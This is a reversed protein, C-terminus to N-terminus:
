LEFYSNDQARKAPYKNSSFRGPSKDEGKSAFKFDNTRDSTIQRFMIEIGEEKSMVNGFEKLSEKDTYVGNRDNWSLWDILQERSWNQIVGMLQKEPLDMVKYYIHNYNPKREFNNM